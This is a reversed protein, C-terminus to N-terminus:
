FTNIIGQFWRTFHIQIIKLDCFLKIEKSRMFCDTFVNWSNPYSCINEMDYHYKQKYEYITNSAVVCETTCDQDVIGREKKDSYLRIQKIVRCM